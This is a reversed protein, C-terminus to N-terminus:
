IARIEMLRIVISWITRFWKEETINDTQDYVTDLLGSIIVGTDNKYGLINRRSTRDKLRKVLGEADCIQIM